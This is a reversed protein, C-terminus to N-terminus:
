PAQLTGNAGGVAVKSNPCAPHGWAAGWYNSASGGKLILEDGKSAGPLPTQVVGAADMNVTTIGTGAPHAKLATRMRWAFAHDRCSTDGSVGIAGLKKKGTSDFVALGGGFVNIGGIRQGVLPDNNTGYLVPSGLYSTSSDVPNSLQLGFLSGGPQVASYLNATSIVYGNLSFDNATNAKQASIIRSGLWESNGALSGTDGTTVVSCVKGTEDVFTAWMNLGYGGTAGKAGAAASAASKLQSYSIDSCAAFAGQSALSVIAAGLLIQITQKKM